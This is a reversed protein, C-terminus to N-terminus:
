SLEPSPDSNKNLGNEPTAGSKAKHFNIAVFRLKPRPNLPPSAVGKNKIPDCAAEPKAEQSENGKPKDAAMPKTPKYPPSALVGSAAVKRPISSKPGDAQNM